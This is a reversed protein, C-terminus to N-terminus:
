SMKKRRLVHSHTKELMVVGKADGTLNMNMFSYIGEAFFFLVVEVNKQLTWSVELETRKTPRWAASASLKFWHSVAKRRDRPSTEFVGVVFTGFPFHSPSISFKQSPSESSIM